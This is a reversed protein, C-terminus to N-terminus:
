AQTKLTRYAYDGGVGTLGLPMLSTSLPGRFAETITDVTWHEDILEPTQVSPKAVVSLRQGDIRIIQGHVARSRDSLLYAVLAANDAATPFGAIRAERDAESLELSDVFEHAMRTAARPSVANVRIGREQVDLAWCYTLSSIAGKSAGYISYAGLGMHAGSTVNVISGHGAASMAAIAHTGCFITGMVNIAMLRAVARDEMQEPAGVVQIGANNVLGDIAGFESVCTDILRRAESGDSVDAVCTIATGGAERISATTQDAIAEDVDNVVVAAGEAAALSAYAAGIGGGSGTIVIAKGDLLGM